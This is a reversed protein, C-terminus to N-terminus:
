HATPRDLESLVAVTCILNETYERPVESSGAKMVKPGAAARTARRVRYPMSKGPM